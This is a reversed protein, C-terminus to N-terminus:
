VAPSRQRRPSRICGRNKRWQCGPPLCDSKLFGACPSPYTLRPLPSLRRSRSSSRTASRQRRPSRICGRNKRWQCEPPLCGSKLLGTCPSPYTLRPLRSDSPLLEPPTMSGTSSSEASYEVDERISSISPDESYEDDERISSNSPYDSYEVNRRGPPVYLAVVSGVYPEEKEETPVSPLDQEYGPDLPRIVSEPSEVPTPSISNLLSELMSNSKSKSRSKRSRSYRRRQDLCDAPRPSTRCKRLQSILGRKTYGSYPIGRSRAVDILEKVTYNEYAM